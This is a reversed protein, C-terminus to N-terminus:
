YDSEKFCYDNWQVNSVIRIFKILMKMIMREIFFFSHVFFWNEVMKTGIKEWVFCPSIEDLISRSRDWLMKELLIINWSWERKFNTWEIVINKVFLSCEEPLYSSHSYSASWPRKRSLSDLFISWQLSENLAIRSKTLAQYSSSTRGIRTETKEEEAQM